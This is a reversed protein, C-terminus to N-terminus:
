KQGKLALRQPTNEALLGTHLRGSKDFVVTRYYDKGVVRNPDLIKILLYESDRRNAGTLDPGVEYGQGFLRHCVMCNKEFVAQGAKRDSPLEALQRRFKALQQELKE